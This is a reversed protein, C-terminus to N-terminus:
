GGEAPPSPTLSTPAEQGTPDMAAFYRTYMLMLRETAEREARSLLTVIEFRQEMIAEMERKQAADEIDPLTEQLDTYFSVMLQRAREYNGRLSEALAAGLRGELRAIELEYALAAKETQWEQREVDMEARQNRGQLWQPLFGILFAVVIAAAVIGILKPKTM